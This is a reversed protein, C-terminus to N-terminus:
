GARLCNMGHCLVDRFLLDRWWKKSKQLVQVDNGGGVRCSSGFGCDLIEEVWSGLGNRVVPLSKVVARPEIGRLVDPFLDEGVTNDPRVRRLDVECSEDRQEVTQDCDDVGMLCRGHDSSSCM